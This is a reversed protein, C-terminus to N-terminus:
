TSAKAELEGIRAELESVKAELEINQDELKEREKELKAIENDREDLCTQCYTAMGEEITRGCGRTDCEAKVEYSM